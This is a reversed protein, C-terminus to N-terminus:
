RFSERRWAQALEPREQAVERRAQDLTMRQGSSKFVNELKEAVLKEIKEAATGDSKTIRSNGDNTRDKISLM